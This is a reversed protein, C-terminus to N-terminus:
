RRGAGARRPPRHPAVARAPTRVAGVCTFLTWQGPVGRLSVAGCPHLEVGSGAVLEATTRSLLVSGPAALACIRAAVHVTLGGIGLETREVEGTHVGCRVELGETRALVTAAAACEVAGTARGFTAVLGDGTHTVVVGGLRAAGRGVGSLLRELVALWPRDGMAVVRETSSVVDVFM